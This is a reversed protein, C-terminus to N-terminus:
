LYLLVIIFLLVLLLNDLTFYRRAYSGSDHEKFCIFILVTWSIRIELFDQWRGIEVVRNGEIVYIEVRSEAGELGELEALFQKYKEEERVRCQPIQIEM